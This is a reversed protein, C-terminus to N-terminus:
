RTEWALVVFAALAMAAGTLALDPNGRLAATVIVVCAALCVILAAAPALVPRVLAWWERITM